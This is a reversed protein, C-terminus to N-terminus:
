RRVVPLFFVRHPVVEARNGTTNHHHLLLVGLSQHSGFSLANFRVPVSCGNCAPWIPVSDPGGAADLGPQTPDYTHV